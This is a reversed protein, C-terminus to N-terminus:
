CLLVLLDYLYYRWKYLLYTPIEIQILDLLNVQSSKKCKFKSKSHRNTKKSFITITSTSRSTHTLCLILFTVWSHASGVIQQKYQITIKLLKGLNALRYFLDYVIYNQFENRLSANKKVILNRIFPWLGRQYYRRPILVTPSM